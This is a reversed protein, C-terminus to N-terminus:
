CSSTFISAITYSGISPIIFSVQESIFFAIPLYPSIPLLTDIYFDSGVSLSPYETDIMEAIASSLTIDFWNISPPTSETTKSFKM